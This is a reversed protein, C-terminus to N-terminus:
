GDHREIRDILELAPIDHENGIQLMGLGMKSLSKKKLWFFNGNIIPMPRGRFVSRIASPFKVFPIPMTKIFM